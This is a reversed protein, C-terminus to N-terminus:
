CRREFMAAGHEAALDGVGAVVVSDWQGRGPRDASRSDLHERSVASPAAGAMENTAIMHTTIICRHEKEPRSEPWPPLQIAIYRSWTAM